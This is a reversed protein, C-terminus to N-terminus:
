RLLHTSTNTKNRETRYRSSLVSVERLVGCELTVENGSVWNPESTDRRRMELDYNRQALFTPRKRQGIYRQGKCPTETTYTRRNIGIRPKM